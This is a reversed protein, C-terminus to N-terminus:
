KLAEKIPLAALDMAIFAAADAVGAGYIESASMNDRWTHSVTFRDADFESVKAICRERMAEVRADARDEIEKAMAQTSRVVTLAADLAAAHEADLAAIFSWFHEPRLFGVGESIWGGAAALTKTVHERREATVQPTPPTM